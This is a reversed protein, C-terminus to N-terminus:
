LKGKKRKRETELAEEIEDEKRAIRASRAEEKVVASFGAEMDSDDDEYDNHRRRAAYVIM